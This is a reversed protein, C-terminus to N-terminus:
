KKPDLWTTKQKIFLFIGDWAMGICFSKFMGLQWGTLETMFRLTLVISLINVYIRKANDSMLYKWSFGIPSDTSAPDRLRTGALLVLLVGMAAFFLNALFFAPEIGGLVYQKFM